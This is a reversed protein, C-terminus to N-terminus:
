CHMKDYQQHHKSLKCIDAEWGILDKNNNVWIIYEDM